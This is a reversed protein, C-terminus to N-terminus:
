SQLSCLRRVHHMQGAKKASGTSPGVCVSRAQSVEEATAQASPDAKREKAIDVMGLRQRVFKEMDIKLVGQEIRLRRGNFGVGDGNVEELKGFKFRKTLQGVRREHEPSGAMLLDDVEVLIVGELQNKVHLLFMCPDMRAPKYGLEELLVKRLTRRWHLPADPLGYCGLVIEILQGEELDNHGGRCQRAGKTRCLPSSQTVASKLDGIKIPFGYNMAVQLAIQLSSTAVTPAFRELELIDPDKDGRLCWRSKRTPEEGVKESPKRRRVMRSPIVRNEEGRKRLDEMVKRSEEPSLVKVAGSKLIKQWENRDEQDWAEREEPPIEHDYLEGEGRRKVHTAWSQNVEILSVDVKFETVGKWWNRLPRREELWSWEDEFMRQKGDDFKAM